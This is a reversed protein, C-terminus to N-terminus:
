AYLGLDLTVGTPNGEKHGSQTQQRADSESEPNGEGRADRAPCNPPPPPAPSPPLIVDMAGAKFDLLGETM